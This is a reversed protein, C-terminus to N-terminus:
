RVKTAQSAKSAEQSIEGLRAGLVKGVEVAQQQLRGVEQEVEGTHETVFAQVAAVIASMLVTQRTSTAEKNRSAFSGIQESLVMTQQKAQEGAQASAEELRDFGAGLRQMEVRLSSACEAAAAGQQAAFAKLQEAEQQLSAALAEVAAKAAAELQQAEALAKDMYAAALGSAGTLASAAAAEAQEARREVAARMGDVGARLASLHEGLQQLDTHKRAKFASLQEVMGGLQQRQQDVASSLTTGLDGLREQPVL